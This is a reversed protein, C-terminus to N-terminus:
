LFILISNKDDDLSPIEYDIGYYEMFMENHIDSMIRFKM